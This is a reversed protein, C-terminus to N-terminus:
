REGHINQHLNAWPDLPVGNSDVDPTVFQDFEQGMKWWDLPLGAQSQDTSSPAGPSVSLGSATGPSGSGSAGSMRRPSPPGAVSLRSGSGSARNRRNHWWRKVRDADEANPGFAAIFKTWVVNPHKSRDQAFLEKLFAAHEPHLRGNALEVNRAKAMRAVLIRMSDMGIPDFGAAVILPMAAKCIQPVTWTPNALFASEVIADRQKLASRPGHWRGPQRPAPAVTTATDVTSDSDLYQNFEDGLEWWEAPLDPSPPAPTTPDPPLPSHPVGSQALKRRHYRLTDKWWQTVRDRDQANPGWATQFDAWVAKPNRTKDKAFEERLYATHKPHMGGWARKIKHEKAIQSVQGRLYGLSVPPLGAAEILPKVVRFVNESTWEPHQLFVSKVIADRQILLPNPGSRKPRGARSSTTPLVGFTRIVFIAVVLFNRM